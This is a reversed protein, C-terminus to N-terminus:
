VQYLHFRRRFTGVVVKFGSPSCALFPGRPPLVGAPQVSLSSVVEMTLSQVAARFLLFHNCLFPGDRGGM